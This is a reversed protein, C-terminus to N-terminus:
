NMESASNNEETREAGSSVSCGQSGKPSYGMKRNKRLEMCTEDFDNRKAFFAFFIQIQLLSVRSCFKDKQDNLNNTKLQM